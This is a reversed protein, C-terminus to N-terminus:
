AKRSENSSKLTVGLSVTGRQACSLAHEPFWLPDTVVPAGERLALLALGCHAWCWGRGPVPIESFAVVTEHPTESRLIRYKRLRDWQAKFDKQQQKAFSKWDEALWKVVMPKPATRAIDYRYASWIKDAEKRAKEKDGLIWYKLMGCWAAAFLEGNNRPEQSAGSSDVATEALKLLQTEGSGFIACHLLWLDHLCRYNQNKSLTQTEMGRAVVFEVEKRIAACDGKSLWQCWVWGMCGEAWCRPSSFGNDFFEDISQEPISTLRYPKGDYNVEVDSAELMAKIPVGLAGLNKGFFDVRPYSQQLVLTM